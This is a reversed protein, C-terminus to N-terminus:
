ANGPSQAQPGPLHIALLSPHPRVHHSPVKDKSMWTATKKQLKTQEALGLSVLVNQVLGGPHHRQGACPRKPLMAPHELPM